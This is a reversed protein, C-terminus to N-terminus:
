HERTSGRAGRTSGQQAGKSGQHERSAGTASGLERLAGESSGRFRGQEREQGPVAIRLSQMDKDKGNEEDNLIFNFVLCLLGDVVVFSSLLSVWFFVVFKISSAASQMQEFSDKFQLTPASINVELNIPNDPYQVRHRM